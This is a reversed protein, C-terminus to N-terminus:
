ASRRRHDGAHGGHGPWSRQGRDQDTLPQHEVPEGAGSADDAGGGLGTNKFSAALGWCTKMLKGNVMEEQPVFPKTVGLEKWRAAIGKLCDTLGVSSDLLQGTNTTDGTKLTNKLRIELPDISLKNALMDLASEMIFASQMVGFGRFAGAPPNNTYVAFCDVKVNPIVYPGTSHTAARTMVKDGLSAYAGTDGYLETEAAILTGDKM